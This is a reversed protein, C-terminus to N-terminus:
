RRLTKDKTVNRDSKLLHRDLLSADRLRGASFNLSASGPLEEVRAPERDDGLERGLHPLGGGGELTTHHPTTHHPTPATHYTTTYHQHLATYHQGMTTYGYLM